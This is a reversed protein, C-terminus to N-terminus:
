IWTRENRTENIVTLMKETPWLAYGLAAPWHSRDRNTGKRENEAKGGADRESEEIAEVLRPAVPSGNANAAVFLRSENSANCLLRNIMEIRAERSIHGKGRGQKDFQASRMDLGMMKFTLYVSRDTKNNSDGYPDCRLLAKMENPGNYNTKWKGQLRELLKQAHAESTGKTTLEDVVYWRHIREKPFQYAKLMISVDVTAGPDHGVLMSYNGFRQLVKETVDKAGLQPPSLLNKAREWAPYVAHEPAVDLALCRRQWERESLNRKMTAWHSPWVSWNAQFPMREIKWDPSSTKGARWNRFTSSDKATATCFRHSVGGPASRLRAEIDGDRDGKEEVTDQIEDSTCFAWSSGQIPSGLAASSQHTARMQLTLGTIFRLEGPGGFGHFTGWSNRNKTHPTDIPFVSHMVHLLTRLRDGTPATCGANGRYNKKALKIVSLAIYMALTHSKGAGEAGFCLIRSEEQEHNILPWQLESVYWVLPDKSDGSFRRTLTDYM